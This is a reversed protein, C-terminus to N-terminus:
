GGEDCEAIQSIRKAKQRNPKHTQPDARLITSSSYGRTPGVPRTVKTNVSIWGLSKGVNMFWVGPITKSCELKGLFIRVSCRGFDYNCGKVTSFGRATKDTENDASLFVFKDGKGIDNGGGRTMTEIQRFKAGGGM